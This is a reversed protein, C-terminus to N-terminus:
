WSDLINLTQAQLLYGRQAGATELLQTGTAVAMEFAHNSNPNSREVALVFVSRGLRSSLIGRAMKVVCNQPGLEQGPDHHRPHAVM